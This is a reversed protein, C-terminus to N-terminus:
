RRGEMTRAIQFDALTGFHKIIIGFLKFVFVTCVTVLPFLCLAPHVHSPFFWVFIHSHTLSLFVTVISSHKQIFAGCHHTQCFFFFSFFAISLPCTVVCCSRLRETLANNKLVGVGVSFCILLTKKKKKIIIKYKIYKKSVNRSLSKM